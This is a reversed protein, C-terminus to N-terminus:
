SIGPTPPGLRRQLRPDATALKREYGPIQQATSPCALVEGQQWIAPGVRPQFSAAPPQWQTFERAARHGTLAVPAVLSQQQRGGM